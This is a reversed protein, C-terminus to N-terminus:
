SVVVMGGVYQIIVNKSFSYCACFALLIRRFNNSDTDVATAAIDLLHQRGAFLNM